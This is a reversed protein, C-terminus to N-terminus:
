HTVKSILEENLLPLANRSHTVSGSKRMEISVDFSDFRFVCSVKDLSYNEVKYKKEFDTVANSTSVIEVKAKSKPSITIGSFVAKKIKLQKVDERSYLSDLFDKTNITVNTISVQTGLIDQLNNFIQITARPLNQVRLLYAQDAVRTLTFSVIQYRTTKDEIRQGFADLFTDIFTYKEIYKASIESERESLIEFGYSKVQDYSSARIKEGIKSLPADTNLLYWKNREITM